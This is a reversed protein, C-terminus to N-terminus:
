MSTAITAGIGLKPDQPHIQPHSPLRMPFIVELDFQYNSAALGTLAGNWM